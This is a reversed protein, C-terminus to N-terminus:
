GSANKKIFLITVPDDKNKNANANFLPRSPRRSGRRYWNTKEILKKRLRDEMSDEAHRHLDRRSELDRLRAKEYGLLGRTM